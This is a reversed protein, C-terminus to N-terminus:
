NNETPVVYKVLRIPDFGHEGEEDSIVVHHDSNLKIVKAKHMGWGVMILVTDGVSLTIGFKDKSM